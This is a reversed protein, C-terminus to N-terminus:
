GRARSMGRPSHLRARPKTAARPRTSRASARAATRATRRAGRAAAREALKRFRRQDRRRAARDARASSRVPAGKKAGSPRRRAAEPAAARGGSGEPAEGGPDAAGTRPEERDTPAAKPRAKAEAPRSGSVRTCDQPHPTPGTTGRRRGKTSGRGRRRATATAAAGAGEGPDGGLATGSNGGGTRAAPRSRPAGTPRAPAHARQARKEGAAGGGAPSRTPAADPQGAGNGRPFREGLEGGGRAGAPPRPPRSAQPEAAAPVPAARLCQRCMGGTDEWQLASDLGLLRAARPRSLARQAPPMVRRRFAFNTFITSSM